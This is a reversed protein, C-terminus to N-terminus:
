ADLRELARAAIERVKPDQTSRAVQEWLRRAREAQGLKEYNWAAFRAVWAPAGPIRSARLFDHAARERDDRHLMRLFGREFALWWSQPMAAMGRTLLEEAQQPRGVDEALILAGFIYADEFEPDLGTIVDFLHRAHPYSQDEMRHRGYYQIARLWALDAALQAHGLRLLPLARGSPFASLEPEPISIAAAPWHKATVASGALAAGAVLLSVWWRGGGPRRRGTPELGPM